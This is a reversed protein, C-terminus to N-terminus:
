TTTLKLNHTATFEDVFDNVFAKFAAKFRRILRNLNGHGTICIEIGLWYFKMMQHKGKNRNRKFCTHVNAIISLVNDFKCKNTIKM